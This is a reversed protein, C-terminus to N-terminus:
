KPVELLEFTVGDPDSFYCFRVGGCDPHDQSLTAPTSSFEIGKASLEQYTQDIDDVQFCIHQIGVDSPLADDPLPKGSGTTYQFLEIITPTNPVEFYAVRTTAGPIGVARVLEPDDIETRGALKLGLQKTYFEVSRDLDSVIINTHHWGTFM